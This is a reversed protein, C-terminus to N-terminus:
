CGDGVEGLLRMFEVLSRISHTVESKCDEYENLRSILDISTLLNSKHVHLEEPSQFEFKVIIQQALNHDNAGNKQQTSSM